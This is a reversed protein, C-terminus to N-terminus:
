QVLFDAAASHQGCANIALVRVWATFAAPLGSASAGTDAGLNTPAMYQTGGPTTGASLVYSSAGAVATWTVSATGNVVAGSLAPSAPPSCGAGITFTMPLSAPGAVAGNAATVRVEFTGQTGAPIPIAVSTAAGANVSAVLAGGSYFDLRHGTATSGAGPAWAVNLTGGSAVASAITPQGPPVGAAGVVLTVENSPASTGAANTARVRVYYTGAAVSATLGTAPGVNSNFINSAGSATGAEIVYSTAPVGVSLTWNLTVTTGSVSGTLAPTEPAGGSAVELVYAIGPGPRPREPDSDDGGYGSEGALLTNGSLAMSPYTTIAPEVRIWRGGSQRYVHTRRTFASFSAVITDGDRVIWDLGLRATPSLPDPPLELSAQQTWAGGVRTFVYGQKPGIIVSDGSLAIVNGFYSNERGGLATLIAQRTWVNGNRVFVQTAGQNANGGVTAFPEGILVTDGDLDVAGVRAGSHIPDASRLRAQETWGTGTRAFVLVAGANYTVIATDGEVDAAVARDGSTLSSVRGNPRLEAQQTWTGGTRVFVWYANIVLTDGSLAVSQGLRGFSLDSDPTTSVRTVTQQLVWTGAARTYIAVGGVQTGNTAFGPAGVALTDGDIAVSSGFLFTNPMPNQLTAREQLVDTVNGPLTQAGLLGGGWATTCLLALVCVLRQNTVPSFFQARGKGLVRDHPQAEAPGAVVALDLTALTVWWKSKSSAM